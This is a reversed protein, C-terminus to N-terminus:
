FLLLCKTRNKPRCPCGSCPEFIPSSACSRVSTELKASSLLNKRVKYNKISSVYEIDTWAEALVQNLWQKNM